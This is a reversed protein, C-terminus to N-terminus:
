VAVVLALAEKGAALQERLVLLDLEDRKETARAIRSQLLRVREDLAMEVAALQEVTFTVTRVASM